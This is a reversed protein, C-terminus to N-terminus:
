ASRADAGGNSPPLGIAAGRGHRMQGPTRNYYAAFRRSFASESRYGVREGIEAVKLRTETLLEAAIRMRIDTLIEMPAKGAEVLFRAAFTSRGMGVKRALGAVTWDRFPHLEMYQIARGIPDRFQADRFMAQCDPHDRLASTLLLGAARTLVSAGGSRDVEDLLASMNVMSTGPAIALSAPLHAASLGGPWRIKLRGCLIRAGRRGKKGSDDDLRFTPPSDAHHGEALFPVIQPEADAHLRIAHPEGSVIIAIAGEELPVPMDGMGSLKARGKLMAYFYVTDSAEVRLGSHGELEVFCWCQSRLELLNLFESLCWRM